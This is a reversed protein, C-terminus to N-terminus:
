LKRFKTKNLKKELNQYIGIDLVDTCEQRSVLCLDVHMGTHFYDIAGVKGAAKRRVTM